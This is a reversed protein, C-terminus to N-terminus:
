DGKATIVANMVDIVRFHKSLLAIRSYIQSPSPTAIDPPPTRLHV